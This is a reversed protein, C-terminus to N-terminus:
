IGGSVIRAGQVYAGIMVLTGIFQFLWCLESFPITYTGMAGMDVSYDDICSAALGGSSTFAGPLTVTTKSAPFKGTADQGNSGYLATLESDSPMDVCRNRWQQALIACGVPDGDCVPAAACTGGGSASTGGPKTEIPPTIAGGADITGSGSPGEGAPVPRSSGSVQTPNYYNYTNCSGPATCAEITQSPTAPVGPTGNDPKPPTPAAAACVVSGDAGRSCRDPETSAFCHYKGNVWGCNEGTSVSRCFSNSGDATCSESAVPAPTIPTTSTCDEGTAQYTLLFDRAGPPGIRHYNNPVRIMKCHGPTCIDDPPVYSDAKDNASVLRKENAPVDTCSMVPATCTTGPSVAVGVVFSRQDWTYSGTGQGKVCYVSDWYNNAILTVTWTFTRGTAAQVAAQGGSVAAGLSGYGPDYGRESSYFTDSAGGCTGAGTNAGGPNTGPWGPAPAGDILPCDAGAVLRPLAVLLVFLWGRSHLLRAYM